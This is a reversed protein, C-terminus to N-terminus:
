ALASKLINELWTDIKIKPKWGLIKEALNINAQSFKIDGPVSKEHVPKMNKQALRIMLDALENITMAIGSGINIFELHLPKQMAFLNAQVVDEVHIFDRTQLGDGYIVPPKNNVINELFKSIVGAYNKNQGLGYVNFYRLVAINVGFESYKECLNEAMLKTKGYPNIPSKRSNETIPTQEPIGYVAASSAFIVKLKFEKAIKLITETGAVNIENYLDQKAFSEQVSTLGALHFIGDSNKAINRLQEHNQISIKHFEIEDITDNLNELSGSYLDDIVSVDHKQQLLSKTLHSGIFGAGGTVIFKM